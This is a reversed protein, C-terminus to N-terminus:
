GVWKTQNEQIQLDQLQMVALDHADRLMENDYKGDIGMDTITYLLRAYGEVTHSAVKWLLVLTSETNNM